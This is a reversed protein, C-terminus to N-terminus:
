GSLLSIDDILLDIEKGKYDKSRLFTRIELLAGAKTANDAQINQEINQLIIIQLLYHWLYDSYTQLNLALGKDKIRGRLGRIQDLFIGYKKREGELIIKFDWNKLKKSSIAIASKGSGKRGFLFCEDGSDLQRFEKTTLFLNELIETENWADLDGLKHM